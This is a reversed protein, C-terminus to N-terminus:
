VAQARTEVEYLGALDRDIMEKKGRILFTKNIIREGPIAIIEKKSNGM